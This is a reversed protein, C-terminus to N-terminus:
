LEPIAHRLVEELKETGIIELNEKIKDNVEELEPINQAPILVTKIEARKAAMLKQELGGIPLVDGCLTIEGTMAVDYRVKKGSLISVLATTITVGASPGDKPIAGEPIHIHIDTNKYFDSKYGYKEANKRAFSYAAEASEKMVDGLKGTLKLKGTGEMKLVEIQLTEGGLATWALGTVAGIRNEKNIKNNKLKEVGLYDKINEPTLTFEKKEECEVFETIIKRFVKGIQRNLNRVGSEKTYNEIIKKVAEKQWDITLGSGLIEHEMIQKPILHEEAIHIKEFATYGPLQIVEMRDLLPGPISSVSNATTIFLVKSLDYDFDLYHDRFSNNQEPDLVELLASAPDGRFDSSLKDIEDMMILPNVTGAKKMSKIIVGPISGIYTRRHGRIESEDRVGGLSIRVFERELAEAVSKGLSTKGVGPPGVLCLIQGKVKKAMKMVALHEIIREKVKKLGYHDRDLINRAEKISFVTKEPQEWPIDCVWSLYSTTVAYEPSQSSIRSLKSLEEEVRKEAEKNLNLKAAKEKFKIYDAASDIGLEKHIVKLQEHLYYDKQAKNMRSKVKKDIEKELKLIQTESDIHNLMEWLATEIDEIEFLEQKVTVSLKSHSLVLYFYIMIGSYEDVTEIDNNPVSKAYKAYNEYSASFRRILAHFEPTREPEVLNSEIYGAKLMQSTRYFRKVTIRSTGEALIRINGNPLRFIQLIRAATGVRYMDEAKPNADSESNSMQTICLIQKDDMYSEEVANITASRGVLIPTIIGPLIITERLPIVPLVKNKNKKNDNDKKATM